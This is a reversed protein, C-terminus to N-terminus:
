CTGPTRGIGLMLLPVFGQLSRVLLEQFVLAEALVFAVLQLLREFVETGLIARLLLLRGVLPLLKFFLEGDSQVVNLLTGLQPLPAGAFCPGPAENREAVRWGNVCM